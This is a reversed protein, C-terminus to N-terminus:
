SFVAEDLFIFHEGSNLIQTVFDDLKVVRQEFESIRLTRSAPINNKVVKKKKFGTLRFIKSYTAQSIRRNNFHRHFHICRGPISLHCLFQQNELSM